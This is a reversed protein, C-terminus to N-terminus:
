AISARFQEGTPSFAEFIGDSMVILQGTPGMQLETVRISGRDPL